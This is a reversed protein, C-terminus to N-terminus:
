ETSSSSRSCCIDMVQLLGNCHLHAGDLIKWGGEFGLAERIKEVAALKSEEFQRCRLTGCVMVTTHVISYGGRLSQGVRSM